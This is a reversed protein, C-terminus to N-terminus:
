IFYTFLAHSSYIHPKFHFKLFSFIFDQLARASFNRSWQCVQRIFEVMYYQIPSSGESGSKWSLAVESDSVVVIQPQHPPAPPMCKDLVSSICLFIILSASPSICVFIWVGCAQSDFECAAGRVQQGELVGCKHFFIAISYVVSILTCHGATNCVHGALKAVSLWTCLMVKPYPQWMEPCAPDDKGRGAM